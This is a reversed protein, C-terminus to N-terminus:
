KTRKVPDSPLGSRDALCRVMRANTSELIKRGLLADIIKRLM